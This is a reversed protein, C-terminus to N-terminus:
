IDILFGHYRERPDSDAELRISKFEIRRLRAGPCYWELDSSDPQSYIQANATV